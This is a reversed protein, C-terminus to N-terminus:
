DAIICIFKQGGRSPRLALRAIDRMIIGPSRPIIPDPQHDQDGQWCKVTRALAANV